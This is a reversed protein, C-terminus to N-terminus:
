CPPGQSGRVGCDLERRVAAVQIVGTKGLLFGPGEPHVLGRLLGMLFGM